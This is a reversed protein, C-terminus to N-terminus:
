TLILHQRLRQKILSVKERWSSREWRGFPMKPPGLWEITQPTFALENVGVPLIICGQSETHIATRDPLGPHAVTVTKQIEDITVEILSPNFGPAALGLLAVETALTSQPDENAGFVRTCIEKAVWAAAYEAPDGSFDPGPPTPNNPNVSLLIPVESNQTDTIVNEDISDFVSEITPSEEGGDPTPITENDTDEITVTVFSANEDVTYGAGPEVNFTINQPSDPDNDDFVPTNITGTQQSLLVQFGSIDDNISVIQVNNFQTTLLNFQGLANEFDTDIGVM